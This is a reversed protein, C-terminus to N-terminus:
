GGLTNFSSAEGQRVCERESASRDLVSLYLMLLAQLREGIVEELARSSTDQHEHM